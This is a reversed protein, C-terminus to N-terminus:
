TLLLSKPHIVHAALPEKNQADQGNMAVGFATSDMIEVVRDAQGPGAAGSAAAEAEAEVERQSYALLQRNLGEAIRVCTAAGALCQNGAVWMNGGMGKFEIVFFPYMLANYTSYGNTAVAEQSTKFLHDQHGPDPFANASAYGYLMDPTPTCFKPAEGGAFPVVQRNMPLRTRVTIADSGNPNPFVHKTFYKKVAPEPTGQFLEWRDEDRQLAEDTPEPSNREKNRIHAM